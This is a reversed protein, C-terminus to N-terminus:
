ATEGSDAGSGSRAAAAMAGWLRRHHEVSADRDVPVEILTSRRARLAAAFAERLGEADDAREYGLEFLRAIERVRVGHPVRFHEEFAVAEGHAAIPLYSFIGGGDNQFVVVPLRLGHRAAALLGGLDHLLALDGIVLATPEDGAAAAGLASSSVGDIGNAGRNALVRLRKESVPLFGDADRVPMSSSVFLTAGDPLTEALIRLAQPELLPENEVVPTCAATADAEARTWSALWPGASRTPPGADLRALLGEVLAAPDAGLVRHAAGEPDQWAGDPDVLVQEADRLSALWLRTAKSTPTDGFRLAFAPALQRALAGDRLLADYSALLPSEKVHSGSRVGSLADALLPWRAARALRGLGDALHPDADLPGCVLVGRETSRIREALADLTAATPRPVSAETATFAAGRPRGALAEPRSAALAALAEADVPEPHLPERFPLNLHAPGAPPGGAARAARAALTRAHVLLTESPEPLPAEHFFRVHAGFIGAQTITQGAGVGRLEAPRDATLALLPVRGYFAEALAPAFNAAATGSTCVLAVPRRTARAIGLGFFGAAREDVHTWVRLGPTHAAAVALPASRSGPCLCLHEVGHRALEDLLAAAFAFAANGASVRV